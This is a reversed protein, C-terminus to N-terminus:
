FNNILSHKATLETSGSVLKSAMNALERIDYM